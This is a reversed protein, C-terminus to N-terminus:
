KKLFQKKSQLDKRYMYGCLPTIFFYLLKHKQPSKKIGAHRNFRGYNILAKIVWKLGRTMAVRQEYYAITGNISDLRIKLMNDTLGGCLYEVGKLIDNTYLFPYEISFKDFVMAEPIFKEGEFILFRYQKLLLTKYIESKDKARYKDKMVITNSVIEKRLPKELLEGNIDVCLGAMGGIKQNNFLEESREKIIDVANDTIWDDSDVCFFLKGEASDIGENFASPKGGNEKYVYRINIINEEIYGGILTKTDDISGDDVVLWEFCEKCKQKLLSQYLRPLTSARNYTPTFITLLM